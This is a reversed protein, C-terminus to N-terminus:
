REAGRRHRADAAVDTAQGAHAALGVILRGTRQATGGAHHEGHVDGVVRARLARDIRQTARAGLVDLFGLARPLVAIPHVEVRDTMRAEDVLGLDFPGARRASGSRRRNLAFLAAQAAR